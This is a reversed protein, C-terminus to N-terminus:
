QVESLNKLEQEVAYQWDDNQHGVYKKVIKKPTNLGAQIYHEELIRNVDAVAQDFNSYDKMNWAGGIGWCNNTVQHKCFSSEARAIGIILKWQTQESIAEVHKALSSNKASLYKELFEKRKQLPDPLSLKEKPLFVEGPKSLVLDNLSLVDPQSTVEFPAAAGNSDIVAASKSSSDDQRNAFSALSRSTAISFIFTILFTALITAVQKKDISSFIKISKKPPSFPVLQPQPIPARIIPKQKKLPAKKAKAPLAKNKIGDM